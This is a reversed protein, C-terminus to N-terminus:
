TFDDMGIKQQTNASMPPSMFLRSGKNIELEIDIIKYRM